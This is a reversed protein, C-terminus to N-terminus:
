VKMTRVEPAEYAHLTFDTWVDGTSAGNRRCIERLSIRSNSKGDNSGIQSLRTQRRMKMSKRTRDGPKLPMWALVDVTQDLEQAGDLSRFAFVIDGGRRGHMQSPKRAQDQHLWIPAQHM